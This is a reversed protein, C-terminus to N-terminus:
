KGACEAHAPPEEKVAEKYCSRTGNVLHDRCGVETEKVVMDKSDDAKM